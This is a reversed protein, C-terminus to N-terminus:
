STALFYLGNAVLPLSLTTMGLGLEAVTRKKEVSATERRQGELTLIMLLTRGTPKLTLTTSTDTKVSKTRNEGKARLRIKTARRQIM